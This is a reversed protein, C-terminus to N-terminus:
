LYDAHHKLANTPYMRQELSLTSHGMIVVTSEFALGKIAPSAPQSNAYHTTMHSDAPMKAATAAGPPSKPTAWLARTRHHSGRIHWM